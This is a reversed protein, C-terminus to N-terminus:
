ERPMSLLIEEQGSSFSYDIERTRIVDICSHETLKGASPNSLVRLRVRRTACTKAPPKLLTVTVVGGGVVQEEDKKPARTTEVRTACTGFAM